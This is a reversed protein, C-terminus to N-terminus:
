DMFNDNEFLTYFAINDEKILFRYTDIVDNTFVEGPVVLPIGPPYIMISDAAVRNLAKHLPISEAPKFFAERPTYIMHPRSVIHTSQIKKKSLPHTKAFDEFARILAQISEKSDGLSIVALVVFTEGLELQINYHSKFYDYVKFGTLGFAKVNITLKTIDHSYIGDHDCLTENVVQLGPIDNLASAAYRALNHLTELHKKGSKALEYRAIDLSALLLYSASSTQFLNVTSRVDEFPVIGNNHLLISSQTLSGGTKHMSITILDAKKEIASVPYQDHFGFHSGHSQDVLVAINFQHAYDIIAEINSTFGFYTPHLVMIAKADQHKDITAKVDELRMGMSIGSDEDYVPDIYIPTAGSIIVGNIASKHVNRPLIIKEKDGVTAVIMNQVGSTSGNVLFFSHDAGFLDNALKEAELIVGIPNSLSDLEKMSNVDMKFIFDGVDQKFVNSIGKGMKHGPVDFALPNSSAYAVLADYLPKKNQNNTM